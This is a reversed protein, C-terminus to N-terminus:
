RCVPLGSAVSRTMLSTPRAKGHVVLVTPATTEEM